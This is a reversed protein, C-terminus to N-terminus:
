CKSNFLASWSLAKVAVSHGDLTSIQQGKRREGDRRGGMDTGEPCFQAELLVIKGGPVMDVM